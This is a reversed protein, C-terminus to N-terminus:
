QSYQKIFDVAEKFILEKDFDLTAVHYSNELWILKKDKSSINEYIYTANEPPVVHDDRAEFVRAPAKVRTINKKVTDVLKVLEHLAKTSMKEYATEKANPDKLDNGPGPMFPILHKLVPVLFLAYQQMGAALRSVPACIPIIGSIKDPHHEALYLTLTGGMSLGAVFVRDCVSALEDLAKEVTKIWDSHSYLSMDKVNTGHGPIRPGLVTIGFSSLYEGMPLMSSSTGTFGHILLCGAQSDGQIFFPKGEEMVSLGPPIRLTEFGPM